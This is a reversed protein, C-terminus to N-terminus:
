GKSINALIGNVFSVDDKYSFSQAINVAESIIIDHSLKNVVKMEYVALRLVSLSIKSIREIKWNKLNDKIYQDIEDQKKCIDYFMDVVEKNLKFLEFERANEVIQEATDQLFIKQFILLFVAERIEHRTMM